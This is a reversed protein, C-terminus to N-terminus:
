VSPVKENIISAVGPCPGLIYIKREEQVSVSPMQAALKCWTRLCKVARDREREFDCVEWTLQYNLVSNDMSMKLNFWPTLGLSM